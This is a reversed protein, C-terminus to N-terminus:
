SVVDPLTTTDNTKTINDGGIATTRNTAAAEEITPLAKESLIQDLVTLDYIGELNPREKGKALFGLDYADNASKFLSEKIPDDTFELRTLSETLVDEPLEKGTLKKLQV